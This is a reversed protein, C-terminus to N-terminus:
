RGDKQCSHGELGHHPGQDTWRAGERDVGPMQEDPAEDLTSSRPWSRRTAGSTRTFVFLGFQLRGRKLCAAVDEIAKYTLPYVPDDGTGKALDEALALKTPKNIITTQAHMEDHLEMTAKALQEPCAAIAMAKARDGMGRLKLAPLDKRLKKILEKIAGDQRRPDQSKSSSSVLAECTPGRDM